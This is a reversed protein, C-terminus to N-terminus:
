IRRRAGAANEAGGDAPPFCAVQTALIAKRRPRRAAVAARWRAYGEHAASICAGTVRALLEILVPALHKAMYGAQLCVIAIGIGAAIEGWGEGRAAGIMATLVAVAGILLALVLVNWRAAWAGVLVNCGAILGLALGM